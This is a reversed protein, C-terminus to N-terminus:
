NNYKTSGEVPHTKSILKAFCHDRDRRQSTCWALAERYDPSYLGAVTIWYGHTKDFTSWDPSWLLLVGPYNEWRQRLQLHENLIAEYDWVMGEARLGDYKSSVQPVWRETLLTEATSRDRNAFAQLQNLAALQPNSRAPTTTTTTPRPTTTTSTTTSSPSSPESSGLSIDIGARAEPETFTLEGQRGVQVRYFRAGSPVEDVKFLLSCSGQQGYSSEFAGKALLKGTEDAVTVPAGPAVDDFGQGGACPYGPPLGSTKVNNSNLHVTGTLAFPEPPTAKRLGNFGLYAAICLLALVVAASLLVLSRNSRPPAPRTPTAMPPPAYPSVVAPLTLRWQTSPDSVRASNELARAFELCSAFRDNPDKALAKGLVGDLRALEPHRGALTPPEANLHKSIVVAPNSHPFLLAGSLLQYATAALSYQDARGDVPLGMLQEPAAYAVTGVTMNTTTLGSIDSLDRAVGFDSLLIRREDEQLDALLINAPKVDRHILSRAHAHDLAGGVATVIDVVTLLPVGAPYEDRLMRGADTGAVYDMSIWLRGRYKGRDHIGVIHPHWLKAAIDAEREFRELFDHDASIDARLVKLADQRPLRPHQALYVEGM